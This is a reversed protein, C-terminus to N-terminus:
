KWRGVWSSLFVIFNFVGGGKLSSAPGLMIAVDESISQVSKPITKRHVFVNQFDKEMYSPDVGRCPSAGTRVVHSVHFNLPICLDRSADLETM